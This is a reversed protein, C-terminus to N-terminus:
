KKLLTLNNTSAIAINTNYTAYVFKRINIYKAVM